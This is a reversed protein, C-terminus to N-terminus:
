LFLLLLSSIFLLNPPSQFIFFIIRYIFSLSFVFFLFPFSFSSHFFSVFCVSFTFFCLLFHSSILSQNRQLSCSYSWLAGLPAARVGTKVKVWHQGPSWILCLTIDLFCHSIEGRTSQVIPLIHPSSTIHAHLLSTLM